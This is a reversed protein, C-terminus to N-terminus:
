QKNQLIYNAIITELEEGETEFYINLKFSNEM